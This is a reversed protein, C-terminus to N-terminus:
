VGRSAAEATGAIPGLMMTEQSVAPDRSWFCPLVHEAVQEALVHGEVELQNYVVEELKLM